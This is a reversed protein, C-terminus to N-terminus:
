FLKLFISDINSTTILFNDLFYETAM